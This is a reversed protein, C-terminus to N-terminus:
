LEQSFFTQSSGSQQQENSDYNEAIQDVKAGFESFVTSLDMLVESLGSSFRALQSNVDQFHEGTAITPATAARAATAAVRDGATAIPGRSVARIADTHVTFEAM